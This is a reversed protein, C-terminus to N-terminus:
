HRPNRGIWERETDGTERRPVAPHSASMGICIDVIDGHYVGAPSQMSDLWFAPCRTTIYRLPLNSWSRDFNRTQAIDRDLMWLAEEGLM